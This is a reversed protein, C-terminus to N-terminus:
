SVQHWFHTQSYNHLGILLEMITILQWKKLTTVDAGGLRHARM